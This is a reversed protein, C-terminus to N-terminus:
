QIMRAPHEHPAVHRGTMAAAYAHQVADTSTAWSYRRAGRMASDRLRHPAHLMQQHQLEIAPAAKAPDAFDLVFGIGGERVLAEFPPIRSLVPLLGASMGEVISIGFGEHRSASVIYSSCGIARAIAGDDPSDLIEVAAAVDCRGAAARLDDVSVDWPRGAIALTWGPHLRRLDRLLPFLATLNKNSSFRGVYLLQRLPQASGLSAWKEVDVGNPALVLRRAAIPRFLDYDSQSSACIARYALASARTVSAFYVQKARKAFATHFFGGHTSAVLPKGHLPRTLALFDFFFDIGHVHVLDVDRIDRLVGPAVPYRWSGRFPIRRVPLGGVMDRAPLREPGAKAIRDLTIVCVDLGRGQLTGALKLVAEELGGVSPSFQRVVHAVRM